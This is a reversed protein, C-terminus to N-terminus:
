CQVTYNLNIFGAGSKLRGWEGIKETITYVEGRKVTTTIPYTTSPGKRVNLIECNVKVLFTAPKEVPASMPPQSMGLRQTIDLAIRPFKDYLYPGPCLTAQYWRHAQLTSSEKKGTFIPTINYRQCIDVCLAILSQYVKDSVLWSPGLSSNSVEITIGAHDVSANGTTWARFEEPVSSWIEGDKGICYNASAKREPKMFINCCSEASMIGAMHHIVIYKIKSTRNKTYNPSLREGVCLKSKM